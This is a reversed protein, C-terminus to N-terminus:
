AAHAPHEQATLEQFPPAPSAELRRYQEVAEATAKTMFHAAMTVIMAATMVSAPLYWPGAYFAAAGYVCAASLATLLVLGPWTRSSVRGGSMPLAIVVDRDSISLLLAVALVTGLLTLGLSMATLVWPLIM